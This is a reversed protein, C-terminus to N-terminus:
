EIKSVNTCEDDQTPRTRYFRGHTGGLEDVMELLLRPEHIVADGWLDQEGRLVDRLEPPVPAVCSISEMEVSLAHLALRHLGKNQRWWRNVTHDGHQTDGLIPQGLHSFAHRRIQHTRGTLPECLVLSAAMTNTNTDSQQTALLTFKTVAAKSVGNDMLLPKDVIVQTTDHWWEGRLLAIYQKSTAEETLQAHLQGCTESDFAFLIVGSTRHDLRHVPFVKRALQRRLRSKLTPANRRSGAHTSLGAPKNVAVWNDHYQLVPIRPKVEASPLVSLSHVFRLRTTTVCSVLLAHAIHATKM